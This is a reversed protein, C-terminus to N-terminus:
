RGSADPDHFLDFLTRDRVAYAEGTGAAVERFGDGANFYLTWRDARPRYVNWFLTKSRGFRRRVDDEPVAHGGRRVREAVRRVCLDATDLFVFAVTVVYGSARLRDFTAAMGRGALTSEAVFSARASILGDLEAFFQRGAEIRAAWPNDPRLEAALADASVYPQPYARVYERAFTTKGAGNPGGVILAHPRM